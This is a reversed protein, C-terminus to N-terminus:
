AARLGEGSDENTGLNTRLARDSGGLDADITMIPMKPKKDQADQGDRARQVALPVQRFHPEVNSTSATGAKSWTRNM